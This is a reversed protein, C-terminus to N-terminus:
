LDYRRVAEDDWIGNDSMGWDIRIKPVEFEYFWRIVIPTNEYKGTFLVCKANEQKVVAVPKLEKFKLIDENCELYDLLHPLYKEAAKTDAEDYRDVAKNWKENGNNLWVPTTFAYHEDVQKIRLYVWEGNLNKAHVTGSIEFDATGPQHTAVVNRGCILDIKQIIDTGHCCLSYSMKDTVKVTEGMSAGNFTFDVYMRAGSTAYTSGTTFSNWIKNRTLGDTVSATLPGSGYACDRQFLIKGNRGRGTEVARPGGQLGAHLDTCGCVAFKMGLGLAKQMLWEANGFASIVEVMRDSQCQYVDWKPTSGGIHVEMIVDDRKGYLGEVEYLSTEYVPPLQEDLHKFFINRDGERQGPHSEYSLFPVYKNQIDYSICAQKYTDWIEQANIKPMSMPGIACFDLRCQKHAQYHRGFPNMKETNGSMIYMSRDGWGHAHLDGWFVRNKPHELVKVPNSVFCENSDKLRAKIRYVGEVSCFVDPQIIVGKEGNTKFDTVSCINEFGTTDELLVIDTFDEIINSNRDYVSILVDFKEQPKVVTPLLVRIYTVEHHPLGLITVPEKDCIDIQQDYEAILFIKAESVTWYTESGKSGESTDGVTVEFSDGKKFVGQEVSVTFPCTFGVQSGPNIKLKAQSITKLTTYDRGKPKQTQCKHSFNYNTGLVIFNTGPYYDKQNNVIKFIWSGATGTIVNLKKGEVKNGNLDHFEMEFDFNVPHNNIGKSMELVITEKINSQM